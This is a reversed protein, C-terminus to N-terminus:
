LGQWTLRALHDVKKRSHKVMGLYKLEGLAREFLALAEEKGEEEEGGRVNTVTWFASLLDAANIQNGCELYLKYLIAIAPQRASISDDTEECCGHGLYDHPRLLAREIAFRPRPHFVSRYPSALDYMLVEIPFIARPDVLTCQFRRKLMDYLLDLTKTYELEEPSLAATQQSLEVKHAVITTRLNHYQIDHGSRLETPNNQSLRAKISALAANDPERQSLLDAREIIANVLDISVYSTSKKISNLINELLNSDALDGSLALVYIESWHLPEKSVKSQILDLLSVSSVINNLITNCTKVQDDFM